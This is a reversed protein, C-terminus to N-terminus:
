AGHLRSQWHARLFYSIRTQKIRGTRRKECSDGSVRFDLHKCALPQSCSWTESGLGGLDMAKGQPRLWCEDLQVMGEGEEM